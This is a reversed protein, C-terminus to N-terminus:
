DMCFTIIFYDSALMLASWAVLPIRQKGRGVVAAFVVGLWLAAFLKALSLWVGEASGDFAGRGLAAGHLIFIANVAMAITAMLLGVFAITDRWRVFVSNNKSAFIWACILCLLPPILAACALVFPGAMFM